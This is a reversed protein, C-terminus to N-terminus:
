INDLPSGFLLSQSEVTKEKLQSNLLQVTISNSNYENRNRAAEIRQRNYDYLTKM